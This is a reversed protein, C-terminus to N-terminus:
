NWRAKMRRKFLEMASHGAAQSEPPLCREHLWVVEERQHTQCFYTLALFVEDEEFTEECATCQM